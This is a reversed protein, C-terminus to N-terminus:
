FWTKAVRVASALAVADDGGEAARKDRGKSAPAKPAGKSLTVPKPHHDFAILM